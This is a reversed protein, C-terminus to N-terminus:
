VGQFLVAGLLGCDNCSHDPCVVAAVSHVKFSLDEKDRVLPTAGVFLLAGVAFFAVFRTHDSSVEMIAPAIM